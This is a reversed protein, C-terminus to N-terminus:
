SGGGGTRRTHQSPDLGVGGNPEFTSSEGGSVAFHDQLRDTISTNSVEASVEFQQHLRATTSQSDSSDVAASDVSRPEVQLEQGALEGGTAPQVANM